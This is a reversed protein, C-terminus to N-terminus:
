ERQNSKGSMCGCCLMCYICYENTEVKFPFEGMPPKTYPFTGPVELDGADYTVLLRLREKLKDGFEGAMKLDEEDPDARQM